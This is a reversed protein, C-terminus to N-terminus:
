FRKPPLLKPPMVAGLNSWAQRALELDVHQYGRTVTVNSHGIVQQTIHSDVGAELLLTATSHRITHQPAHPIEAAALVAKWQKQDQDQSFPRGSPHHFVLGHPNTGDLDRLRRLIDVMEPLLPVLRTGASTKPRTFVLTGECERWEMSAPFQWHAEPCFSVRVMGCPYTGAAPAGCGHAKQLRQLQWSIDICGRELDVRDWELGLIECERAGTLFGLLWRAGWVEGQTAVAAEVIKMATAASFAMQQKSLHAPKDVREMVNFGVVGDRVAAKFALRLVQDAKQAARTSVTAQLDIYLARIDAPTVRALRKAGLRPKLYLRITDAYSKTTGPKVNRHPLIEAHWYDLWKDATTSPASALKGADLDARLKRLAAAADNRNRRVIRKHRRKGDPGAPLEIGAVWYGDGRKFLAGDGHSRRSAMRNAGIQQATM